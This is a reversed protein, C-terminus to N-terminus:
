IYIIQYVEIEQVEWKIHDYETKKKNFFTYNECNGGLTEGKDLSNDLVIEYFSENGFTPGYNPDCYICDKDDKAPYKGNYNFIFTSKDRKHGTGEWGKETYGGFVSEDTTQIFIMTIGKNDCKDHFDKPKDGDVTKRYLLSAIFNRNDLYEKVKKEDINIKSKFIKGNNKLFGFNKIDNFIQKIDEEKDPTFTSYEDNPQEQAFFKYSYYYFLPEGKKLSENLENIEKIEKINNDITICNNMLIKLDNNKWNFNKSKVEKIFEKTKDTKHLVKKIKDENLTSFTYIKDMESLIQEERENLANRLKTFIKQIKMNIEERKINIKDIEKKIEKVSKELVLILGELIKINENLKDKKENEFDEIFCIDCDRHQGQGKDKIKSICKSCCLVNHTKCYYELEVLHNQETCLGTFIENIDNNIDNLKFQHHNEFLESHFNECKECMYIKCEQCYSLADIANHKEFSCKYIDEEM